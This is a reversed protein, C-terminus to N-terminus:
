LPNNLKEGLGLRLPEVEAIHLENHQRRHKAMDGFADQPLLKIGVDGELCAPTTNQGYHSSCM